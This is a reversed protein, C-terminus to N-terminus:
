GDKWPSRMSMEGASVARISSVQGASRGVSAVLVCESWGGMRRSLSVLRAREPGSERESWVREVPAPVPAPAPSPMADAAGGAGSPAASAM